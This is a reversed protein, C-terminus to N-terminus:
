PAPVEIVTASGMGGGACLAAVGIGGGRRRLEHVLTVLMRAGTAAVPHGLSCGSGSFNVTDPDLELLRVAAVPVSAFAENIEFLDVDAISLGGRALAKPIAKVPALGMEAPDVGVSAWSRVTALATLGERAATAESAVVLAVAADNAGGANGATISFGDIEPHLPKLKALKEASTDRRPHEDVSFLGHPTEIPVIEEKFRGEDIAAVANRHSRLAWADLEARTLGVAVATNWGVTISMDKNPADPRDPHTPSMWPEWEGDVRFLAKPSTSASNVGGAIVLEDMGAMVSAAASQVAAMGAACHRNNALGAVSTLGATVAAHRALVGGGYLGEGLIVDDILAPDLGEAAATVIHHALDFATTDRLTGKLATGIPTRLASAIVAEPM